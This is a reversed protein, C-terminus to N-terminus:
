RLGLFRQRAQVTAEVADPAPSELFRRIVALAADEDDCSHLVGDFLHCARPRLVAFRPFSVCVTPLGAHVAEYLATSPFDLVVRRIRPLVDLFPRTEYTVNTVRSQKLIEPIPDYSQNSTPLGKWVFQIDQQEQMAALLRLQWRLYWADEFYMAPVVVTDGTFTAPVYCIPGDDTAESLPPVARHRGLSISPFPLGLRGGGDKLDPPVTPDSAVMREFNSTETLLWGDYSFAHDGHQYLVREIGARGAALLVAFEEVSWPNTSVVRDVGVAKLQSGLGFALREVTPLVISAVAELRRRLVDGAGALGAQRDVQRLLPGVADPLDGLAPLPGYPLPRGVPGYGLVGLSLIATGTGARELFLVRAGESRESRAIGALGYGGKWTFLTADRRSGPRLRPISLHRLPALRAKLRVTARFRRSTCAPQRPHLIEANGVARAREKPTPEFPISLDRAILPLFRAALPLDGLMPWYQLHGHHLPIAEESGSPGIYGISSPQVEIVASRLLRAWVTASDLPVKVLQAVTRCVEPAGLIEGLSTIWRQQWRLHDADDVIVFHRDLLDDIVVHDTGNDQCWVLAKPTLPVM